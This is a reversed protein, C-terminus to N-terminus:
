INPGFELLIFFTKKDTSLPIRSETGNRAVAFSWVILSGSPEVTILISQGRANVDRTIIPSNVAKMRPLIVMWSRRERKSIKLHAPYRVGAPNNKNSM